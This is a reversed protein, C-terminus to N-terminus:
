KKDWVSLMDSSGQSRIGNDNLIQDTAAIMEKRPFVLTETGRGALDIRIFEDGSDRIIEILHRLNKIAIGNISAVIRMVPSSYNKALTHTFFPSPVIVLEEGEYAPRDSRRTILPNGTQSLANLLLGNNGSSLVTIMEEVAISFVLPGCIFYPPYDGQLYPILKPRSAAVPLQISM